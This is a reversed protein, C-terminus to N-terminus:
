PGHVIGGGGVVQEYGAVSVEGVRKVLEAHSPVVNEQRMRRLKRGGEEGGGFDNPEPRGEAGAAGRKVDDIRVGSFWRM